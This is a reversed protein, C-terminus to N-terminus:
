SAPENQISAESIMADRLSLTLAADMAKRTAVATEASIAALRQAVSGVVIELGKAPYCAWILGSRVADDATLTGGLLTWGLARARGILQPLLWTTGAGSRLSVRGIAQSFTASKAAIVLDCSLAISMGIGSVKGRVAAILPVPMSSLREMLEIHLLEATNMSRVALRTDRSEKRADHSEWSEPRGGFAGPGGTLVVCRVANDAATANLQALLEEYVSTLTLTRVAAVDAILPAAINHASSKGKSTGFLRM